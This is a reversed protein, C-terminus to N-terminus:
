YSYSATLWLKNRDTGFGDARYDAYKVEAGLGHGFKAFAGLDVESGYNLGSSEASFDHYTVFAGLKEAWGLDKVTYKVTASLDEIGTAPTTLFLDAFGQFKHGTAYPTQFATAGNGELVQYAGGLSIGAWSATADLAYYLHEFDATNNEYDSQQAVEGGYTVKLPQFEQTGRLRLGYSQSSLGAVDENEILYAYGM